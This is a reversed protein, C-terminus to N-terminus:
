RGKRLDLHRIKGVSIRNASVEPFLLSGIPIEADVIRTQGALVFLGSGTTAAAQGMDYSAELLVPTHRVTSVFLIIWCTFGSRALVLGELLQM